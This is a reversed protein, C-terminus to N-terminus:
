GAHLLDPPLLARYDAAPGFGRRTLGLYVKSGLSRSQGGEYLIVDDPKLGLLLKEGRGVGYCPILTFSRALGPDPLQELARWSQEGEDALVRYLAPPLMEELCRYDIVIVPLSSFPDRLRNGTDLYAPVRKERGRWAVQLEVSWLRQWGKEESLPRLLSFLLYLAACSGCLVLSGAATSFLRRFRELNLLATLAGALMFSFLFFAGWSYIAERLRLPWFAVLVMLLPLVLILVVAAVKSLPLPLLLVAFAGLSAGMLLRGSSSQRHFFKATLLLLSYHVLVSISFLLDLYM